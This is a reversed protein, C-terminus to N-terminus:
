GEHLVLVAIVNSAIIRFARQLEAEKAPDREVRDVPM